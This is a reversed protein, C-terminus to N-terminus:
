FAITLPVAFALVQWGVGQEIAFNRVAVAIANVIVVASALVLVFPDSSWVFAVFALAGIALLYASAGLVYHKTEGGSIAAM